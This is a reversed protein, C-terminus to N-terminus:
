LPPSSVTPDPCSGIPDTCLPAIQRQLEQAYYELVDCEEPTLRGSELTFGFLRECAGMFKAVEPRINEM